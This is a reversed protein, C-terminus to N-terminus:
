IKCFFNSFINFFPSDAVKSSHCIKQLEQQSSTVYAVPHNNAISRMFSYFETGFSPNSTVTDFEDLLIVLPRSESATAKVADAFDNYSSSESIGRGEPDANSIEDLVIQFFGEPNIKPFKQIDITILLPRINEPLYDQHTEPWTLANILSSKGIRREGVISVCQPRSTGIRSLIQRLERRRGFFQDPSKLMVRNLYPNV